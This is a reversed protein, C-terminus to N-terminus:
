RHKKVLSFAFEFSFCYLACESLMKSSKLTRKEGYKTVYKLVLRSISIFRAIVKGSNVCKQFHFYSTHLTLNSLM